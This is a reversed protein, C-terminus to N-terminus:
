FKRYVSLATDNRPHGESPARRNSWDGCRADFGGRIAIIAASIDNIDSVVRRLKRM